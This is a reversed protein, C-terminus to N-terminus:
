LPFFGLLHVAVILCWSGNDVTFITSLNTILLVSYHVLLVSMTLMNPKIYTVPLYSQTYLTTHNLKFTEQMDATTNVQIDYIPKLSIFDNAQKFHILFTYVSSERLTFLM